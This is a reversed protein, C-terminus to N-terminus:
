NFFISELEEATLNYRKKITDIEGITFDRHGCLKLSFTTSAIGLAKALSIGTDGHRKMEAELLNRHM